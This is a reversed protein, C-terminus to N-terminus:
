VFVVDEYEIEINKKGYSETRTSCGSCLYYIRLSDEKEIFRLLRKKMREIHQPELECEFVSYQVRIGWNLLEKSIKNRRRDDSIDYSVVIRM